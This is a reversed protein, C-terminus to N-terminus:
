IKIDKVSYLGQLVQLNGTIKVGVGQERIESITQSEVNKSNSKRSNSEENNSVM